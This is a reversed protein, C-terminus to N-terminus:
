KIYYNTTQDRSYNWNQQNQRLRVTSAPNYDILVSIDFPKSARTEM